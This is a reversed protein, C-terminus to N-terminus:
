EEEEQEGLPLTWSVKSSIHLLVRVVPPLRGDHSLQFGWCVLRETSVEKVERTTYEQHRYEAPAGAKYYHTRRGRKLLVGVELGGLSMLEM